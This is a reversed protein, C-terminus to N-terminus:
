TVSLPTYLIISDALVPSGCRSTVTVDNTVCSEYVSGAAAASDTRGGSVNDLLGSIETIGRCKPSMVYRHLPVGAGLVDELCKGQGLSTIFFSTLSM